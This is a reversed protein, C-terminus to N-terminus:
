EDRRDFNDREDIRGMALGTAVLVRCIVLADSSLRRKLKGDVVGIAYESHVIGHRCCGCDVGIAHRRPVALDERDHVHGMIEADRFGRDVLERPDALQRGGLDPLVPAEETPVNM